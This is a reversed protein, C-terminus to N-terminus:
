AAPWRSCAAHRLRPPLPSDLMTCAILLAEAVAPQRLLEDHAADVWARVLQPRQMPALRRLRRVRLLRNTTAAPAPTGLAQWVAEAWRASAVTGASTFCGALLATAAAAEQSLQALPTTTRVPKHWAALLAARRLRDLNTRTLRRAEARLSGRQAAPLRLAAERLTALRVPASLALLDARVAAALAFGRTAQAYAAEDALAALLTARLEGPGHRLAFRALADTERQRAGAWAPNQLADHRHAEPASAPSAAAAADAGRAATRPALSLTPLEHEPPAPQPDDPLLEVAEGYLRRLREALPPHTAWWGDFHRGPTHLYFHALASAQPSRLADARHRAQHGIKRLAGGIGAVNRTYQVASADALFERQRSVAAQLLRGGAWGLWGVAMLGLGFLVGLSRRGGDDPRSLSRGLTFVMELGWVLGLLRMHLRTDGHLLHSFEHAVVGQLEERTLRELAGRTVVVVADGPGWGAAFANIADDRALVWAAPAPTHRSALAMEAVIHALRREQREAPGHGSARLERAGALRAVHPGGERLRLSEFWCGGLVFLLVVATNTAFFLAPYGSAFPFSLRYILALVGNAALVVLVLVLAFAVLLQRTSAQAAEQHRRFRV